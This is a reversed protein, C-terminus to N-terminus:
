CSTISEDYDVRGNGLVYRKVGRKKFCPREPSLARNRYSRYLESDPEAYQNINVGSVHAVRFGAHKIDLFLSAHEGGGIKQETDWGVKQFIEQKALSYNVTLDCVTFPPTEQVRIETVTGGEEQLNFEYPANSVRGSAVSIRPGNNLVDQLDLIGKATDQTFDFDDSAMLILPRRLHAVIWNSMMGFGADFIPMGFVEHGEKNLKDYTEAKQSSFSGLHNSDAIIMQATPLHKQISYITKLLKEDRLFTRIGISIDKFM